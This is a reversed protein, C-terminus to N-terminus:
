FSDKLPSGWAPWVPFPSLTQLARSGEAKAPTHPLPVKDTVDQKQALQSGSSDESGGWQRGGNPFLALGGPTRHLSSRGAKRPILHVHEEAGGAWYSEECFPRGKLMIPNKKQRFWDKKSEESIIFKYMNDSYLSLVRASCGLQIKSMERYKQGM